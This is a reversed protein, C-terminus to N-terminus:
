LIPLAGISDVDINANSLFGIFMAKKLAWYIQLGTCCRLIMPENKVIVVM